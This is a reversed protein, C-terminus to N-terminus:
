TVQARNRSKGSFQWMGKLKEWDAASQKRTRSALGETRVLTNLLHNWHRLAPGQGWYHTGDVSRIIGKSDKTALTAATAHGCKPAKSVGDELPICTSAAGDTGNLLVTPWWVKLIPITTEALVRHAVLNFFNSDVSDVRLLDRSIEECCRKTEYHGRRWNQPSTERYIAWPGAQEQKVTTAFTRIDEEYLKASGAVVDNWAYHVGSNAM